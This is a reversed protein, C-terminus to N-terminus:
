KNRLSLANWQLIHISDKPSTNTNKSTPSSLIIPLKSPPKICTCHDLLLLLATNM